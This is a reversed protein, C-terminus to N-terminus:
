RHWPLMAALLTVLAVASMRSGPMQRRQPQTRGVPLLGVDAVEASSELAAEQERDSALRLLEIHLHDM